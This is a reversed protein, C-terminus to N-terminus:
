SRILRPLASPEATAGKLAKPAFISAAQALREMSGGEEITMEHEIWNSLPINRFYLREQLIMSKKNVFLSKSDKMYHREEVRIDGLFTDLCRRTTEEEARRVRDEMIEKQAELQASIKAIVERERSVAVDMRAQMVFFALLSSGAAVFVPLFMWVLADSMM